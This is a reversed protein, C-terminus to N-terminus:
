PGIYLVDLRAGPNFVSATGAVVNISVTVTGGNGGWIFSGAWSITTRQGTTIPNITKDGSLNVGNADVVRLNGTTTVSSGVDFVTSISYTGAAANSPLTVSFMQTFAGSAFNDVTGTRTAFFQRGGTVTFADVLQGASNIKFLQDSLMLYFFMGPAGNTVLAARTAGNAVPLIGGAAVAFQTTPVVTPSGGGAIPINLTALRLSRAALTPAVPTSAATGATYVIIAQRNGSSDVATDDVRLDLADIRTLTANAATVSGTITADNAVYYPAQTVTFAPDVVFAGAGVSWTTSTATITPAHGHMVGSQGGLPRATGGYLLGGLAQRTQQATYLPAGGSVDIPFATITM